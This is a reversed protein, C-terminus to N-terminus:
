GGHVGSISSEIAANIDATKKKVELNAHKMSIRQAFTFVLCAPLTLLLVLALRWEMAFMLIMSGVMTIACILVFEPGHHALETVDFLDTTIRSMLVGTRNKDYFDFSLQQMHEFIDRRMDAEVLAGMRHGFVTIIYYLVAKILYALVMIAMVIFFTMFMKTPLLNQMSIRSIYPFVLDIVSVIVACIMDIVFLKKHGAIYSM